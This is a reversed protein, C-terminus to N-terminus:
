ALNDYNLGGNSGLNKVIVKSIDYSSGNWKWIVPDKGIGFAIDHYGLTISNLIRISEPLLGWNTPLEEYEPKNISESNSFSKFIEFLCGKVGCFGLNRLYPKVAYGPWIPL